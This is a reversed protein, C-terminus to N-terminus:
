RSVTCTVGKFPLWRATRGIATRRLTVGEPTIIEWEGGQHNVYTCAIAYESHTNAKGTKINRTTWTM